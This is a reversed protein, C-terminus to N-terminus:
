CGQQFRGEAERDEWLVKCSNLDRLPDTASSSGSGNVPCWGPAGHGEGVRDLDGSSRRLTKDSGKSNLGFAMAKCQVDWSRVLLGQCGAGQRAQMGKDERPWGWSQGEGQEDWVGKGLGQM